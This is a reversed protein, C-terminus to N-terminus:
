SHVCLWITTAFTFNTFSVFEDYQGSGGAILDGIEGNRSALTQTHVYQRRSLLSEDATTHGAM